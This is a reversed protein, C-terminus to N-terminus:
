HKVLGCFVILSFTEAWDSIKKNSYDERGVRTAYVWESRGRSVGDDVSQMGKEGADTVTEKRGRFGLGDGDGSGRPKGLRSPVPGM